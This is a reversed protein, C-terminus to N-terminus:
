RQEQKQMTETNRTKFTKLLKCVTWLEQSGLLKDIYYIIVGM